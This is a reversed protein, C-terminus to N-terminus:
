GSSGGGRRIGGSSLMVAQFIIRNLDLGASGQAAPVLRPLPGAVGRRWGRRALVASRGAGAGQPVPLQRSFTRRASVASCGDQGTAAAPHIRRKDSACTTPRTFPRYAIVPIAQALGVAGTWATSDMLPWVQSMVAALTM